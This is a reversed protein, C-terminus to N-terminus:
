FLERHRRVKHVSHHSEAAFRSKIRAERLRNTFTTRYGRLRFTSKYQSIFQFVSARMSAVSLRNDAIIIIIFTASASATAIASGCELM